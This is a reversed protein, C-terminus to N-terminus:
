ERDSEIATIIKARVRAQGQESFHVGDDALENVFSATNFHIVQNRLSRKIKKNVANQIKKYNNTTIPRVGSYIRPEVLCVHVGAGCEREITHVIERIVEFINGPEVGEAIDNSGLWLVCHDHKWNLVSNLRPDCFFSEARAGPVRFIRVEALDVLLTKPIQSHGVLSVKYM